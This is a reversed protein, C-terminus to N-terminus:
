QKDNTQSDFSRMDCRRCACMGKNLLYALARETADTEDEGRWAHIQDALREESQGRSVLQRYSSADTIRVGYTSFFQRMWTFVKRVGHPMIVFRKEKTLVSIELFNHIFM